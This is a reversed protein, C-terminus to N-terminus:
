RSRITGFTNNAKCFYKGRDTIQNPDNIILQGGSVTIRSDQLPDIYQELLSDNQYVERYWSYVPSPWGLLPISKKYYIHWKNYLKGFVNQIVFRKNTKSIM